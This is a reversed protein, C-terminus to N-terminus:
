SELVIKRLNAIARSKRMMFAAENIGVFKAIEANSKGTLILRITQQDAVSLQKIASRVQEIEEQDVLTDLPDDSNAPVNDVSYGHIFRPITSQHPDTFPIERPQTKKDKGVKQRTSRRIDLIRRKMIYNSWHDFNKVIEGSANAEESRRLLHLLAEHTLDEVSYGPIRFASAINRAAAYRGYVQDTEIM